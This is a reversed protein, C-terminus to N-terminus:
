TFSINVINQCLIDVEHNIWIKAKCTSGRFINYLGQIIIQNKIKNKNIVYM